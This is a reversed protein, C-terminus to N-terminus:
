KKVSERYKCCGPLSGYAKDDAKFKENDHGATAVKKLIDDSSVKAPNYAVTLMKTDQNWEAKNVGEIKAAKEIRAKCQGCNGEVKLNITKVASEAKQKKDQSQINVNIFIAAMAILIVRMTKM